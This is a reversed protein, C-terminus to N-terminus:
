YEIKRQYKNIDFNCKNSVLERSMSFFFLNYSSSTTHLVLHCRGVRLCLLHDCKEIEIIYIIPEVKKHFLLKNQKWTIDKFFSTSKTCFTKLYKKFLICTKCTKFLYISFKHEHMTKKCIIDLYYIM